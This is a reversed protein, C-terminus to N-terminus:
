VGANMLKKEFKKMKLNLPLDTFCDPRKFKILM